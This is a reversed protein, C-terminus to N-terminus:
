RGLGIPVLKAYALCDPLAWTAYVVKSADCAQKIQYIGFLNRRVDLGLPKLQAKVRRLTLSAKPKTSIIPM